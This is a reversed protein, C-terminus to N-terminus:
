MWNANMWLLGLMMCFLCQMRFEERSDSNTKYKQVQKQISNTTTTPKTTIFCCVNLNIYVLCIGNTSDLCYCHNHSNINNVTGRGNAIGLVCLNLCFLIHFSFFFSIFAWGYALILTKNNNNNTSSGSSSNASEQWRRQQQKAVHENYVKLVKIYM